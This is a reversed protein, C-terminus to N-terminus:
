AVADMAQALRMAYGTARVDHARIIRAGRSVAYAAATTSGTLRAQTSGEGYLKAFMSKRSVGVLMPYNGSGIHDLNRLLSLNHELTKGFGFGPDVCIAAPDVGAAVCAAARQDLFTGVEAVVDDYHPAK